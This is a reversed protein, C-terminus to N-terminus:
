LLGEPPAIIIKKNRIDILPVMETVFPVLREGSATEIV